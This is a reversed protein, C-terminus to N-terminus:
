DDFWIPLWGCRGNVVVRICETDKKRAIQLPHLSSGLVLQGDEFAITETGLSIVNRFLSSEFSHYGFSLSGGHESKHFKVYYDGGPRTASITDSNNNKASAAISLGMGWAWGEPIQVNLNKQKNEYREKEELFLAKQFAVDKERLSSFPLLKAIVDKKSHQMALSLAYDSVRKRWTTSLSLQLWKENENMDCAIKDLLQLFLVDAPPLYKKVRLTWLKKSCRLFSFIDEVNMLRSICLMRGIMTLKDM